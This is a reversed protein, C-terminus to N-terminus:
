VPIITFKAAIEPASTRTAQCPIGSITIRLSGKVAWRKGELFHQVPNPNEVADIWRLSCCHLLWLKNDVRRTLVLVIAHQIRCIAASLEATHNHDCWLM